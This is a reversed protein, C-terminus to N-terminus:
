DLSHTSQRPGTPSLEPYRPYDCSFYTYAM